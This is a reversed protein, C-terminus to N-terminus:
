IDISECSILQQLDIKPNNYLKYITQKTLERVETEMYPLATPAKPQEEFHM